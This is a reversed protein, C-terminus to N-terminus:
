FMSVKKKKFELIQFQSLNFGILLFEWCSHEIHVLRMEIFILKGQEKVGPRQGQKSGAASVMKRNRIMRVEETTNIM